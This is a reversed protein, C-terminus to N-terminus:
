PPEFGSRFIRDEPVQREVAGIDVKGNVCRPLGRQDVTEPAAISCTPIGDIAASNAAPLMTQTPGGNDDLPGLLPDVGFISGSGGVITAGSLNRVLSSYAYFSGTLDYDGFRNFNGSIISYVVAPKVAGSAYIGNGADACCTSNGAITSSIIQPHALPTYHFALGGGGSYAYNNALTSALCTFASGYFYLAGGGQSVTAGPPPPIVNGSITSYEITLNGSSASVGGGQYVATNGRISSHSITTKATGAFVGGGFSANNNTLTSNAVYLVAEKAFIGGGGQDAHSASVVSDSLALGCFEAYIAGGTQATGHVLSVGSLYLREDNPCNEAHFIRSADNGSITLQAAGPGIITLQRSVVIEGNTLTITSGVLSADFTVTNDPSANAAAVAQRLSTTGAAGPDGNTTVIFTNTASACSSFAFASLAFALPHIRCTAARAPAGAPLHLIDLCAMRVGPILCPQVLRVIRWIVALSFHSFPTVM